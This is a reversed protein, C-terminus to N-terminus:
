QYSAVDSRRIRRGYAAANEMEIVAIEPDAVPAVGTKIVPSAKSNAAKNSSGGCSLSVGLAITLLPIYINKM